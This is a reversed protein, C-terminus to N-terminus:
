LCCLSSYFLCVLPLVPHQLVSVGLLLVPQQVVSVSSPLLHQQLVAVDLPLVPQQLVPKNLCCERSYFLSSCFLCELPQLPQQQVSM